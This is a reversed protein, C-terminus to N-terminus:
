FDGDVIRPVRPPKANAAALRARNLEVMRAYASSRGPLEIRERLDRGDDGLEITVPMPDESQRRGTLLLPVAATRVWDRLAQAETAPSVAAVWPDPRRVMVASTSELPVPTGWTGEPSVVAGIQLERFWAGPSYWPSTGADIRTQGVCMRIARHKDLNSYGQLLSLPHVLEAEVGALAALEASVSPVAAQDCFPQLALIRQHVVHSADGLPPVSSKLRKAWDDFLKEDGFIPLAVKRAAADSLPGTAEEVLHWVTNDLIARLHHIAESFLLAIGPPIPRVGAIVVRYRGDARRVQELELPENLSWLGSQDVIEGICDDVRALRAVIPALPEPLWAPFAM